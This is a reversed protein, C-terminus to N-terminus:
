HDERKIIKATAADVYVEMLRGAPAIVRFEYVWRNADQEFSVGIVEGGLESKVRTLIDSLPLAEGRVVALRARDHDRDARAPPAFLAAAAGLAIGIVGRRGPYKMLGTDAGSGSLESVHILLSGVPEKTCVRQWLLYPAARM